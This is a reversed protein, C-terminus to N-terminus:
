QMANICCRRRQRVEAMLKAQYQSDLTALQQQGRGEMQKLREEYELEQENKEQLLLEFKHKDAELEISFKETLEKTKEQLHLDKLRLQYETQMTLETVQQELESIRSSKEELEVKTVLIEEAFPVKEQLAADCCCPPVATM